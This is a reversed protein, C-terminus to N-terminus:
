FNLLDAQALGAFQVCCNETFDIVAISILCVRAMVRRIAIVASSTASGGGAVVLCRHSSRAMLAHRQQVFKVSAHLLRILSAVVLLVASQMQLWSLLQQLLLFFSCHTDISCRTSAILLLYSASFDPFQILQEILRRQQEGSLVKKYVIKTGGDLKLTV